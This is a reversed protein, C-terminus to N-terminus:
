LKPHGRYDMGQSDSDIFMSAITVHRPRTIAFIVAEVIDRNTVRENKTRLSVSNWEKDLPSM